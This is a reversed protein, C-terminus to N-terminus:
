VMGRLREIFSRGDTLGYPKEWETLIEQFAAKRGAEYAQKMDSYTREHTEPKFQDSDYWTEFDTM